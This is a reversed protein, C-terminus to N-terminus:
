PLMGACSLTRRRGRERHVSQGHQSSTPHLREKVRRALEPRLAREGALVDGHEDRSTGGTASLLRGDDVKEGGEDVVAEDEHGEAVALREALEGVERLDATTLTREM